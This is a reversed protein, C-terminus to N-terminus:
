KWRADILNEIAIGAEFKLGKFNLFADTVFYGKSIITKTEDAPRNGIYRYRLGANWGV